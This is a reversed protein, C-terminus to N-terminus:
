KFLYNDNKNHEKKEKPEKYKDWKSAKKTPLKYPKYSQTKEKKDTQIIKPKYELKSKDGRLKKLEQEFIKAELEKDMNTFEADSNSDSIDIPTSEKVQTFESPDTTENVQTFGLKETATIFEANFEQVKLRCEKGSGVFLIKQYSQNQNCVKCKFKIAKKEQHVQYMNCYVCQLVQFLM